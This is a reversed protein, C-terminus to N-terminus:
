ESFLLLLLVLGTYRHPIGSTASGCGTRYAHRHVVGDRSVDSVDKGLNNRLYARREVNVTPFKSHCPSDATLVVGNVTDWPARSPSLFFENPLKMLWSNLQPNAQLFHPYMQSMIRSEAGPLREASRIASRAVLDDLSMGGVLADALARSHPTSCDFYPRHWCLLKINEEYWTVRSFTAKAVEAKQVAPDLCYYHLVAHM